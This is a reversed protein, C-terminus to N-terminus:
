QKFLLKCDKHSRKQLWMTQRCPGVHGDRHKSTKTATQPTLRPCPWLIACLEVCYLLMGWFIGRPGLLGWSPGVQGWSPAEVHGFGFKKVSFGDKVKADKAWLRGCECLGEKAGCPGLVTGRGHAFAEIKFIPISCNVMKEVHGWCTGM